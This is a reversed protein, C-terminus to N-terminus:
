RYKDRLLCYYLDFSEADVSACSVFFDQVAFDFSVVPHQPSVAVFAACATM